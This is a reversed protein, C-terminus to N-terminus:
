SNREHSEWKGELMKFVLCQAYDKDCHGLKYNLKQTTSAFALHVTSKEEVGECVIMQRETRLYFPCLAYIDQRDGMVTVESTKM